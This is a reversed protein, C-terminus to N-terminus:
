LTYKAYNYEDMVKAPSKGSFRDTDLDSRTFDQTENLFMSYCEGGGRVHLGRGSDARWHRSEGERHYAEIIATDWMMFVQPYLM